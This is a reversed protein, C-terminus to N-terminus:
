SRPGSFSRICSDFVNKSANQRAELYKDRIRGFRTIEGGHEGGPRRGGGERVQM